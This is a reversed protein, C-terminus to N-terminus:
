LIVYFASWIQPCLHEREQTFNSPRLSYMNGILPSFHAMLWEDTTRCAFCRIHLCKSLFSHVFVAEYSLWVSLDQCAALYGPSKKTNSFASTKLIWTPTRIKACFVRYNFTNPLPHCSFFSHRSSLKTKTRKYAVKSLVKAAATRIQFIPQKKKEGIFTTLQMPTDKM